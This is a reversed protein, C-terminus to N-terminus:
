KICQWGTDYQHDQILGEVHLAGEEIDILLRLLPYIKFVLM